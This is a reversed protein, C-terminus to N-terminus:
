GRRQLRVVLARHDSGGADLVEVSLVRWARADVLVHDIPAGLLRPATAPWTGVGAAGVQAAADVCPGLDALPAHDLTANFDGAVVAGPERGCAAAALAVDRRWQPVGGLLPVPSVPHVALVPPGGSRPAARVAGLVLPPAGGVAHEGLADALLLSTSAAGSRGRSATSATFPRDLLSALREADARPTEPLAVVSAGTRHVLDAVQAPSTAGGQTNLSLVVLDAARGDPPHPALGRHALVAAHGAGAALVAVAVVLLPASRSRRLAWLVLLVSGAALAGLGLVGRLAVAQAVVPAQSLGVLRPSLSALAVLVVV